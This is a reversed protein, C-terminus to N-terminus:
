HRNSDEIFRGVEKEIVLIWEVKSMDVAEIDGPDMILIPDLDSTLDVIAGDRKTIVLAGTL